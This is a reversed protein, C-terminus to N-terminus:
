CAPPPRAALARLPLPAPLRAPADYGCAAVLEHFAPVEIEAPATGALSLLLECTACALEGHPTRADDAGTPDHPAEGAHGEGHCDHDGAGHFHGHGEHGPGEHGNGCGADSALLGRAHAADHSLHLSRLGGSGPAILAAACLVLIAHLLRHM